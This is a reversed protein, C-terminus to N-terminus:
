VEEFLWEFLKVIGLGLLVLYILYFIFTLSAWIGIWLYDIRRLPENSTWSYQRSSKVIGLHLNFWEKFINVM